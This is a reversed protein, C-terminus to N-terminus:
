GSNCWSSSSVIVAIVVVIVVVVVFPPPFRFYFVARELKAICLSMRGMRRKRTMRMRLHRRAAQKAETLHLIYNARHRALATYDTARAGAGVFMRAAVIQMIALVM